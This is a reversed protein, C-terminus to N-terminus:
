YLHLASELATARLRAAKSAPLPTRAAAALEAVEVEEEQERKPQLSSRWSRQLYCIRFKLPSLADVFHATM